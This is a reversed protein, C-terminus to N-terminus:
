GRPIRAITASQGIRRWSQVAAQPIGPRAKRPTPPEVVGAVVRLVRGGAVADRSWAGHAEAAKIRGEGRVLAHGNIEERQVGTGEPGLWPFWRDCRGTCQQRAAADLRIRPGREPKCSRRWRAMVAARGARLRPCDARARERGRS